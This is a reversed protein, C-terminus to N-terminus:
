HIPTDGLNPVLIANCVMTRYFRADLLSEAPESELINSSVRWYLGYTPHKKKDLSNFFFELEYVIWEM